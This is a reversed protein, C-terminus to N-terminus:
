CQSGARDVFEVIGISQFHMALTRDDFAHSMSEMFRMLMVEGTWNCPIFARVQATEDGLIMSKYKPKGFSQGVLVADMVQWQRGERDTWLRSRVPPPSEVTWSAPAPKPDRPVFEVRQRPGLEPPRDLNAFDGYFRDSPAYPIVVVADPIPDNPGILKM